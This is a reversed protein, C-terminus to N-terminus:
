CLLAEQDLAWIIYTGLSGICRKGGRVGVLRQPCLLDDHRCTETGGEGLAALAAELVRLGGVEHGAGELAQNLPGLDVGGEDLVDADALHEGGSAAGGLHAGGGEDGAEGLGRGDAGEVALAGAAELGADVDGVLDLGAHNLNADAGADLAHACLVPVNSTRGEMHSETFATYLLCFVFSASM